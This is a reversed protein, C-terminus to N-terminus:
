ESADPAEVAAASLRAVRTFTRAVQAMGHAGKAIADAAEALQAPLDGWDQMIREAKLDTNLWADLTYIVPLPVTHERRWNHVTGRTYGMDTAIIEMTKREGYFAAALQEFLATRAEPTMARVDAPKLM